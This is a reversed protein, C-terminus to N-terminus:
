NQSNSQQKYNRQPIGQRKKKNTFTCKLLKVSLCGSRQCILFMQTDETKWACAGFCM